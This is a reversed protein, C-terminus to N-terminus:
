VKPASSLKEEIFNLVIFKISDSTKQSMVGSKIAHDFLFNVGFILVQSPSSDHTFELEIDKAYEELHGKLRELINM